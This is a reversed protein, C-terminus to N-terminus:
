ACPAAESAAANPRWDDAFDSGKGTNCATCTLELNDLRLRLEPYRKVSKIHDVCLKAGDAVGMGCICCAFPRPQSRLFIYRLRRWQASSYFSKARKASSQERRAAKQQEVAAVAELAQQVTTMPPGALESQSLRAAVGAISKRQLLGSNASKTASTRQLSKQDTIGDSHHSERRSRVHHPPQTM